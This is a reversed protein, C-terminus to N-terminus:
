LSHLIQIRSYEITVTCLGVKIDAVMGSINAVNHLVVQLTFGNKSYRELPCLCKGVGKESGVHVRADCILNLKKM